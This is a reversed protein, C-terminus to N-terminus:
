DNEVIQIADLEEEIISKIRRVASLDTRSSDREFSREFDLLKNLIRQAKEKSIDIM